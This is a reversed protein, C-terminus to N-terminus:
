EEKEPEDYYASDDDSTENALEVEIVDTGGVEDILPLIDVQTGVIIVAQIDNYAPEHPTLQPGGKEFHGRFAPHFIYEIRLDLGGLRITCSRSSGSM